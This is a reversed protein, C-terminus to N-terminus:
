GPRSQFLPNKRRMSSASKANMSQRGRAPDTAKGQSRCPDEPNDLVMPTHGPVLPIGCRIPPNPVSSRLIQGPARELCIYKQILRKAEPSFAPLSMQYIRNDHLFGTLPVTIGSKKAGARPPLFSVHDSAPTKPRMQCHRFPISKKISSGLDHFIRLGVPFNTPLTIRTSYTSSSGERRFIALNNRSFDPPNATPVASDARSASLLWSMGDYSAM